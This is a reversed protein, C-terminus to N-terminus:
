NGTEKEALIAPRNEWVIQLGSEGSAGPGLVGGFLGAVALPQREADVLIPVYARMWPLVNLDQLWKKLPRGHPRGAPRYREGGARFVVQLDTDASPGPGAGGTSDLVKVYGLGPGLAHVEGPRIPFPGPVPPLPAQAYLRGRYRRLEVGPWSVCPVRDARAQLIDTFVQEMKHAPPAGFGAEALWYRVLQKARPRPLARLAESALSRGGPIRYRKLDDRAQATLLELAEACHRATRAVTVAAAPWRRTLRPLVEHRLYNRDFGIDQNSLDDIWSLGEKNAWDLLGQRDVALLPRLVKGAAFDAIPPMAALGAVGTGRLAQLLFTELQDDLHHALLLCDGAQMSRRFVGYRAERAAAEPSEGRGAAVQLRAVTLGVDLARCSSECHQQWANSEPQLGHNVHIAMLRGPLQARQKALAYLLATSDLGGSYGVWYCHAAPVAALQEIVNLPDFKVM